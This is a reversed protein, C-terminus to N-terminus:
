RVVTAASAAPPLTTPATASPAPTRALLQQAMELEYFSVMQASMV